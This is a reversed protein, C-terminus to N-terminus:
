FIRHCATLCSVRPSTMKVYCSLVRLRIWIEMASEILVRFQKGSNLQWSLAWAVRTVLWQWSVNRCDRYSISKRNKVNLAINKKRNKIIKNRLWDMWYCRTATGSWYCMVSGHKFFSGATLQLLTGDNSYSKFFM